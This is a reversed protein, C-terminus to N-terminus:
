AVHIHGRLPRDAFRQGIVVRARALRSMVTGLPVDLVEAAERYSLGEVAVLLMVVRQADPLAEVARVVQSFHLQESPDTAQTDVVQLEPADGEGDAAGALSDVPHLRRSRMENLWISHMVAYLWSLPSGEPHWQHQRELARVCTRQVLDQADATHRSLRLAFRWLQPLLTPLLAPVSPAPASPSATM